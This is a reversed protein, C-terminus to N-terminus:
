YFSKVGVKDALMIDKYTQLFVHFPGSYLLRVCFTRLFFNFRVCHLDVM